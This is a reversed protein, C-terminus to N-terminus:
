RRQECIQRLLSQEGLNPSGFYLEFHKSQRGLLLSHLGWGLLLDGTSDFATKMEVNIEPYTQLTRIDM